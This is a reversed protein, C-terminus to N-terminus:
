SDDQGGLGWIRSAVRIFDQSLPQYSYIHNYNCFVVIIVMPALAQMNTDRRIELLMPDPLLVM